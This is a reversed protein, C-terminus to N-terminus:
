PRRDERLEELCGDPVADADRGRAADIAALRTTREMDARDRLVEGGGRILRLLLRSRPEGPRRRAALDLANAVDDTETVQHRRRATPTCGTDLWGIPPDGM